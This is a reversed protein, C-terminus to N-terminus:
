ASSKRRGKPPETQAGRTKRSPLKGVLDQGTGVSPYANGTVGPLAATMRAKVARKETVHDEEWIATGNNIWERVVETDYVPLEDGPEYNHNGSLVPFVATLRGM